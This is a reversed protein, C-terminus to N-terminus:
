NNIEAKPLTIVFTTGEGKTSAVSVKGNYGEIVKQVIALGLGTGVEKTTYFPQFVMSLNETDIGHGNDAFIIKVNGNQFSSKLDIKGGKPMADMSNHLLNWFVQKLKFSDGIVITGKEIESEIELNNRKVTSTFTKITDDIIFGIDVQKSKFTDLPASLLLFDEILLNLKEIERNAVSILRQESEKLIKNGNLLEITGSIASLPNRVEHALGAALQGLVALKESIRVREELSRIETLDQFVITYGQKKGENDRLISASFGLILKEDNPSTYYM